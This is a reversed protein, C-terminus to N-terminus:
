RKLKKELQEMKKMETDLAKGKMLKRYKHVSRLIGIYLHKYSKLKM